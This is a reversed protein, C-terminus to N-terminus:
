CTGHSQSQLSQSKANGLGIFKEIDDLIYEDGCTQLSEYCDEIYKWIQNENFIENATRMTLNHKRCYERILRVEMFLVQNIM